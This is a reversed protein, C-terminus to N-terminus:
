DVYATNGKLDEKTKIKGLAMGQLEDVLGSSMQPGAAATDGRLMMTDNGIRTQTETLTTAGPEQMLAPRQQM